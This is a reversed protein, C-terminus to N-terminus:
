ARTICTLCKLSNFNATFNNLFSQSASTRISDTRQEVVNTQQTSDASHSRSSRVGNNTLDNFRQSQHSGSCRESWKTILSTFIKQITKTLGSTAHNVHSFSEM